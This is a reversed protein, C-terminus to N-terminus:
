PISSAELQRLADAGLVPALDAWAARWAQTLTAIDESPPATGKRREAVNAAVRRAREFVADIQRRAEPADGVAHAVVRPYYDGAAGVLSLAKAAAAPAGPPAELGLRQYPVAWNDAAFVGEPNELWIWAHVMTLRPGHAGHGAAHHHPRLTEEDLSGVHDHWLARPAPSDPPEEGPLLATVFCVGTLRPTSDVLTYTLMEPRAAEIRGDFVSGIHIWHEGMGPFDRGILRYGDAIAHARDHYRATAAKAEDLFRAQAVDLLAPTSVHAHEHAPASAVAAALLLLAATM